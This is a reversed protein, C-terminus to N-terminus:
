YGMPAVVIFGHKEAQDTLGRTRIFQQPSGGLGHLAIVLPTKKEKDYGTPVFLAYEMEKGADKFEYSKKEIRSQTTKKEDKKEKARLGPILLHFLGVTLIGAILIRSPNRLFM